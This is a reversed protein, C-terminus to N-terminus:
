NEDTPTRLVEDGSYCRRAEIPLVDLMPANAALVEDLLSIKNSSPNPLVPKKDDRVVPAYAGLRPWEASKCPGLCGQHWAKRSRDTLYDLMQKQVAPVKTRKASPLSPNTLAKRYYPQDDYVCNLSAAMKREDEQVVISKTKRALARSSPIRSECVNNTEVIFPFLDRLDEWLKLTM